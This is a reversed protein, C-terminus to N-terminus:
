FKSILPENIKHSITNVHMTNYVIDFATDNSVNSLFLFVSYIFYFLLLLIHNQISNFQIYYM